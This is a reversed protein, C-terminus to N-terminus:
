NPPRSECVGIDHKEIDSYDNSSQLSLNSRTNSPHNKMSKRRIRSLKRLSSSRRNINYQIKKDAKNMKIADDHKDASFYGADGGVTIARSLSGLLHIGHYSAKSKELFEKKSIRTQGLEDNM